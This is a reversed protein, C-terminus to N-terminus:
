LGGTEDNMVGGDARPEVCGSLVQEYLDVYRRVVVRADFERMVKERANRALTEPEPHNLVPSDLFAQKSNIKKGPFRGRLSYFRDIPFTVCFVVIKWGEM